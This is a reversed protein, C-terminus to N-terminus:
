MLTTSMSSGTSVAFEQCFPSQRPSWRQFYSCVCFTFSRQHLSAQLGADRCATLEALAGRRATEREAELEAIKAAQEAAARDAAAAWRGLEEARLKATAEAARLSEKAAVVESELEMSSPEQSPPETAEAAEPAAAASQHNQLLELAQDKSALDQTLQLVQAELAAAAAARDAQACVLPGAWDAHMAGKQCFVVARYRESLCYTGLEIRGACVNCLAIGVLAVHPGSVQFIESPRLTGRPFIRYM